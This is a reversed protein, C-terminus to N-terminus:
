GMFRGLREALADRDTKDPEDSKSPPDLHVVNSAASRTEESDAPAAAAGGGAAAIAIITGGLIMWRRKVPDKAEM